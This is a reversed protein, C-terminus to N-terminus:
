IGLWEPNAVCWDITDRLSEELPVPAVWGAERLRSGDLSYRLDHGPRSSHYDVMRFHLPLQLHNAVFQAIVLNDMEKEGAVNFRPHETPGEHDYAPVPINELIFQLADAHNRAHLWVRSGPRWDGSPLPKAHIDVTEGRLVKRVVMPFFKEVDQRQGVNNMTNTVVVPVGYTRWYAFAIMEQSAKSASYPNSPFLRDTETHDHGDPAPGYVEDTSIQIFKKPKAERAYELMNLVLSVNNEIFPVPDNISRDVHSDSAFNLIFDVGGIRDKLLPTFPARLDHWHITVRSPDYGEIDTLRETRGAFRLADIVVIEWDTEKLYHEVAHGGIFGLGGTVLVRNPMAGLM